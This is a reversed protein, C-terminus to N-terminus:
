SVNGAPLRRRGQWTHSFDSSQNGLWLTQGLRLSRNGLQWAPIEKNALTVTVDFDLPDLLYREFTADIKIREKGGPLLHNWHTFNQASVKLDVKNRDPIKGGALLTEGLLSNNQGLRSRQMEPVDSYRLKFQRVEVSYGLAMRFMAEMGLMTRPRLVRLRVERLAPTQEGGLALRRSFGMTSLLRDFLRDHEVGGGAPRSKRWARYLLSYSRHEFIAFLDRLRGEDTERYESDAVTEGLALPLPSDVGVLGLFTVDIEVRDDKANYRMSAADGPPHSMSISSRLRLCEENAPGIEGLPQSGSLLREVVVLLQFLSHQGLNKVLRNLERVVFATRRTKAM